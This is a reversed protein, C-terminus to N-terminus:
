ETKIVSFSILNNNQTSPNVTVSLGSGFVVGLKDVYGRIPAGATRSVQVEFGGDFMFSNIEKAVNTAAKYDANSFVYESTQEKGAAKVEIARDGVFVLTFSMAFLLIATMFKVIFNTKM